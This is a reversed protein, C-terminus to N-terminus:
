RAMGPALVEVMQEPRVVGEAAFGEAAKHKEEEGRVGGLAEGLRWQAARACSHMARQEAERQVSELIAVRRDAGALAARGLGAWVSAFGIREKDLAAIEKGADGGAVGALALRMRLWAAEARVTQVRFLRSTRAAEMPGRLAEADIEGTYLGLEAIARLEYWHQLHFASASASWTAQLLAERAGEVDDEALWLQNMARHLTSKLYQDGRHRADRLYEDCRERLALYRGQFRLGQCRIVRANNLESVTGTTGETLRREGEGLLVSAQEFEGAFYSHFGRATALFALQYDDGRPWPLAAAWEILERGRRASGGGQAGLFIAFLGGIRFIRTPEGLKLAMAMGKAQYMAGTLTDVMGLTLGLSIYCDLRLLERPAIQSADRPTYRMSGIRHRLYHWIFRSLAQRSSAPLDEGFEALVERLVTIGREILGASLFLEASTRRLELRQMADPGDAAAFFVEAAEASRGACRLAHGLDIRLERRDDAAHEGLDLAMRYLECASEFDFTATAREAAHRAHTAARAPDGAGAWHRALRAPSADGGIAVALSRHRQKRAEGDLLDLIAARMRDHYPEVRDDDRGGPSRVLHDVRLVRVDRAVQELDVGAAAALERLRVPEGAIAVLELLRRASAPLLSIRRRVVDGIDVSASRGVTQLYRVLEGLFFPSGAAERVVRDTVDGGDDGLLSDVLKRAESTDLPGLDLRTVHVDMRTVAEDLGRAPTESRSSVLLLVRPADPPRLVEELLNLTDGDVWQLDDLFMVVLRRDSLRQLVERLAGFARGRMELPDRSEAMAPAEAVVGVRALVPFLRPLSSAARPLIAAAEADPMRRWFRSLGDILGDVAKFPVLEQEYCRGRLIVAGRHQTAIRALTEAILTSKGIGSPGRVWAVAPKGGRVVAVAAELARMEAGRGIFRPALTTDLRGTNRDREEGGFAAAMEADGARATEDTALLRMCLDDLDAPIGEVLSSPRPPLKSRKAILVEVFTGTHPLRGTLAEYLMVGVAYWDSSPGVDTSESAQEPSMYAVTGILGSMSEKDLSQRHAALGFDLLVVRGDDTIMVNSPKVDRHVLGAGHLTRLAGVLQPLARRLRAEDVRSQPKLGEGPMVEPLTVDTSMSDNSRSATKQELGRCHAVFDAGEIVEMSYSVGDNGVVLDYLQVLNPHSIDAMARFERKLRYIADPGPQKLTKLAVRHGRQDDLADYVVGM